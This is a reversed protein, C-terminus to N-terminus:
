KHSWFLKVPSSATAPLFFAGTNATTMTVTGNGNQFAGSSPVLAASWITTGTCNVQISATAQVLTSVRGAKQPQQLGVNLTLSTPDSCSVSGSIVANGTNPNVSASQDSTLIFKSFADFEYAGIDCNAALPRVVHRQDESVTCV